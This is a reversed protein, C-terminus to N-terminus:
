SLTQTKSGGRGKQAKEIEDREHELQDKLRQVFWDRLGVPLNYVEIFSWNGHYKLAFAQEYISKQYNHDLGFFNWLLPCRWTKLIIM